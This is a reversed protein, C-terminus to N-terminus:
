DLYSAFESHTLGACHKKLISFIVNANFTNSLRRSEYRNGRESFMYEYGEFVFRTNHLQVYSYVFLKRGEVCCRTIPFRLDQMCRIVASANGKGVDASGSRKVRYKASVEFHKTFDSIPLITFDNTIFFESGKDRQANIIWQAFTLGGDNLEIIEGGTGAEKYTEFDANMHDAIVQVERTCQTTNEESFVFCRNVVDPLLVFQGCQSPTYKAEIYFQKGSNTTVHIDAVTSDEGGKLVFRAKTGFNEKLYKEAEIEFKKWAKLNDRRM